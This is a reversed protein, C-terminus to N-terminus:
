RRRSRNPYCGSQIPTPHLFGIGELTEILGPSIGLSEFTDETTEVPDQPIAGTFLGDAVPDDDDLPDTEDAPLAGTPSIQPSASVEREVEEAIVEGDKPVAVTELAAPSVPTDVPPAELQGVPPPTTSSESQDARRRSSVRKKRLLSGLDLGHGM